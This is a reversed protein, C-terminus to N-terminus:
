YDNLKMCHDLVMLLHVLFCGALFFAIIIGIAIKRWLWHNMIKIFWEQATFRIMDDDAETMEDKKVEIWWM